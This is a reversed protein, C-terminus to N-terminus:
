SQRRRHLARRQSIKRLHPFCWGVKEDLEHSRRRPAVITRAPLSSCLQSPRLHFAAMRAPPPPPTKKSRHHEYIPSCVITPIPLNPLSLQQVLARKRTSESM